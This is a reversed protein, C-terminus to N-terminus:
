NEFYSLPTISLTFGLKAREQLLVTHVLVLLTKEENSLTLVSATARLQQQAAIMPYSQGILYSYHANGALM